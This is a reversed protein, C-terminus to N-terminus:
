GSALMKCRLQTRGRADKVAQRHHSGTLPTGPERSGKFNSGKRGVGQIIKKISGLFYIKTSGLDSKTDGQERSLKM